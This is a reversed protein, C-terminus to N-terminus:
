EFPEPTIPCVKILVKQKHNGPIIGQMPTVEVIGKKRVNELSVKYEFTVKGTNQLVIEKTSWECFRQEGFDLEKESVRGSILSSDGELKM